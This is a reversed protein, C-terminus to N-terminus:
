GGKRYIGLLELRKISIVQTKDRNVPCKMTNEIFDMLKAKVRKAASKSRCFVTVDDAYRVFRLGRSMLEQDLEDLYLMSALWPSIVSGQPTGIRNISPRDKRKLMVPTIFRIVLKVVRFDAIHRRLKAILRDHPVNDFFAKLDLSIAYQYGEKLISNVEAIADGVGCHKRYAFSYRSWTDEALNGTIAQLIMRQVVRDLVTAIGLTRMKGNAKPILTTRVKEPHYNGELILTRINNRRMPSEMLPICVEDITKKDCGVAKGGDAKIVKLATMFNTDDVIQELLDSANVSPIAHRGLLPDYIRQSSKRRSSHASTNWGGRLPKSANTMGAQSSRGEIAKSRNRPPLTRTANSPSHKGTNRKDAPVHRNAHNCPPLSTDTAAGTTKTKTENMDKHKKQM